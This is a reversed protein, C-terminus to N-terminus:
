RNHSINGSHDLNTTVLKIIAEADRQWGKEKLRKILEQFAGNRGHGDYWCQLLAYKQEHHNPNDAKIAEIRAESVRQKRTCYLLHEIKLREVIDQMHPELDIDELGPSVNYQLGPLVLPSVDNRNESPITRRNSQSTCYMISCIVVAIFFAPIAILGWRNRYGQCVTDKISTCKEAVGHPCVACQECHRCHDSSEATTENCYYNEMCKCKTDQTALCRSSQEEGKGSECTTCKLCKSVGNPHDMYEEGAMCNVCNPKGKPAECDSKKFQGKGARHQLLADWCRQFRYFVFPLQRMNQVCDSYHM